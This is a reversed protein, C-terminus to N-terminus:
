RRRALSSVVNPLEELPRPQNTTGSVQGALNDSNYEACPPDGSNTSSSTPRARRSSSHQAARRLSRRFGEAKLNEWADRNYIRM